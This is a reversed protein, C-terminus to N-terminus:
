APKWRRHLWLWQEPYRRIVRELALTLEATHARVDAELEGTQPPWLPGEIMLRLRDGERAAMAVLVPAGSRIAAMALAPSTSAPRGFFPVFVARRGPLAQDILMAVIENRHLAKLSQPVAGRPAILKLGAQRRREMLVANLAGKLPRVVANIPLGRRAFVEGLLEWSGFHATAVLLGKGQALAAEVKEFGEIRVGEHLERESLRHSCLAEIVARAMNVYAGKAIRRREAEPADPLALALNELTVRRRIRLGFALAGVFRALADRIGRPLAAVLWVLLGALARPLPRVDSLLPQTAADQVKRSCFRLAAPSPLRLSHFGRATRLRFTSIM